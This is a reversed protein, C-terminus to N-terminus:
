CPRGVTEVKGTWCLPHQPVVLWDAPAPHQPSGVDLWATTAESMWAVPPHQPVVLWAALVPHQPSDM